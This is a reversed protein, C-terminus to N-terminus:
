AILLENNVQYYRTRYNMISQLQIYIYIRYSLSLEKQNYAREMKIHVPKIENTYM